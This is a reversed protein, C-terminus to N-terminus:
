LSIVMYITTGDRGAEGSAGRDMVEDFRSFGMRVYFREAGENAANMGLHVGRAGEERMRALFMEMLRRGMGFRQYDPLIDIHLHGPYRGLLGPFSEHLLQEPSNALFHLANPMNTTWSIDEEPTPKAIGHESLYPLYRQRWEEVFTSTDPTGIIYGVVRGNGDDVM